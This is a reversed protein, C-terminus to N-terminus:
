RAQIVLRQGIAFLRQGILQALEGAGHAPRDRAPHGRRFRGRRFGHSHGIRVACLLGLFDGCGKENKHTLLAFQQHRLPTKPLKKVVRGPALKARPELFKHWAQYLQILLSHTIQRQILPDDLQHARRHLLGATAALHACQHQTKREAAARLHCKVIDAIQHGAHPHVAPQM